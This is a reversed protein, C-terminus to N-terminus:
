LKENIDIESGASLESSGTARSLFESMIKSQRLQNFEFHVSSFLATQTKVASHVQPNSQRGTLAVGLCGEPMHSPSADMFYVNGTSMLVHWEM